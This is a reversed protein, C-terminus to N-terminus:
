KNILSSVLKQSKVGAQEKILFASVKEGQEQETIRSRIKVGELIDNKLEDIRDKLLKVESYQLTGSINLDNYLRNLSFELYQILGYKRDM